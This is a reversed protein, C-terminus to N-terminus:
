IWVLDVRMRWCRSSGAAAKQEVLEDLNLHTLDYQLDAIDATNKDVRKGLAALGDVRPRMRAVEDRLADVDQRLRLRGTVPGARNCTANWYGGFDSPVCGLVM